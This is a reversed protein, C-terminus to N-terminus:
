QGVVLIKSILSTGSTSILEISDAYDEVTVIYSPDRGPVYITGKVDGNVMVNFMADHRVGEASIILKKIYRGGILPVQVTSGSYLTISRNLVDETRTEPYSGGHNGPAGCYNSGYLTKMTSGALVQVATFNDPFTTRSSLYAGIERANMRLEQITCAYRAAFISESLDQAMAESTLKLSLLLMDTSGLPYIVQGRGTNETTSMSKIIMHVQESAFQTYAREFVMNNVPIGSFGGNNVQYYPIDLRNSVNEIFLYYNLLFHNITRLKQTNEPVIKLNELLIVGRTIARSTITNLFRPHIKVAAEKLAGELIAVSQAWNGQQVELTALHYARKLTMLRDRCFSEISMNETMVPAPAVQSFAVGIFNPSTNIIGLFGLAMLVNKM